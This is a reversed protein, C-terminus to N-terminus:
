QHLKSKTVASIRHLRYGCRPHRYRTLVGEALDCVRSRSLVVSMECSLGTAPETMKRRSVAFIPSGALAGEQIPRAGAGRRLTASSVACHAGIGILTRGPSV